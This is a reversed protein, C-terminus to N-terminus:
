TFALTTKSMIYLYKYKRKLLDIGFGILSDKILHYQTNIYVACFCILYYWLLLLILFSLFFFELFRTRLTRILIKGKKKIRNAGKQAKLELINDESLALFDLIM